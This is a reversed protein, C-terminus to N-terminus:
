VGPLSISWVSLAPSGEVERADGVISEGTCGLIHRTRAQELFASAIRGLEDAHHMSSFVLTLDATDGALGEDLQELVQHFAANTNRATSLASVCKM